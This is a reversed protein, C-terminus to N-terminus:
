LVLLGLQLVLGMINGHALVDMRQHAELMLGVPRLSFTFATIVGQVRLLMIFTHQHEAPIKMLSALLPAGLQVVMLIILGQTVSVWFATKVLSGYSGNNREDKHDVLLRAVASTMGLDIISVYAMLQVLVAWLGFEEKPLWHLILPISVLSYVVNVGLQLYSTALNRSFNKLRSM